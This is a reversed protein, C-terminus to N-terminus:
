NISKTKIMSSNGAGPTASSQPRSTSASSGYLSSSQSNSSVFIQNSVNSVGTCEEAADEALRKTQRDEVTGRLTVVGNKVEVEIESADIRPHRYLADCVDEQIREDSRMYGKPGKGFFSKAANKMNEFFGESQQEPQYRSTSYDYDYSSTHYPASYSSPYQTNRGYNLERTDSAYSSSTSSMDRTDRENDRNWDRQSLDRYGYNSDRQSWDGRQQNWDRQNLGQSWHEDQQSSQTSSSHRPSQYGFSRENDYTNDYSSYGRAGQAGGEYRQSDQDQSQGQYRQSGQFRRQQNRTQRDTGYRKNDM